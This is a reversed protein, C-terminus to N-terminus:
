MTPVSTFTGFASFRLGLGALGGPSQFQVFGRRGATVPIQTPVAFSAHGSGPVTINQLGLQNGSDDWVTAMVLTSTMSLNALAIGTVFGATDDYPVVVTSPYTTQLPVTGESSSGNQLTQRFIAFGSIPGTSSVEAWGLATSALQGIAILLTANPNITASVSSTTSMQTAGQNTTTVPLMMASGDENHFAVTVPTAVASVNVLTIATTWGGNGGGAAIHSLIGSRTLTPPPPTGNFVAQFTIAATGNVSYINLTGGNTTM